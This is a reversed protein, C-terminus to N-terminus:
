SFLKQKKKKGIFVGLLMFGVGLINLIINGLNGFNDIRLGFLIAGLLIIPIVLFM